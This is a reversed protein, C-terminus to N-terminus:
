CYNLVHLMDQAQLEFETGINDKLIKKTASIVPPKLGPKRFCLEQFSNVLTKRVFYSNHTFDSEYIPLIKELDSFTINKLQISLHSIILYGTMKFFENETQLWEFAKEFANPIKSFLHLSGIEVMEHNICGTIFKTLEDDSITAPNAMMLALLKAERFDEKWLENALEQNKPLNKCYGFLINTSVGYIMNYQLGRYKLTEAIEGDQHHAIFQLAKSLEEQVSM